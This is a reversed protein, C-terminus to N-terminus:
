SVRTINSIMYPWHVLCDNVKSKPLKESFFV